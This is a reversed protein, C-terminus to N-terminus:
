GGSPHAIRWFCGWGEAQLGVCVEKLCGSHSLFISIGTLNEQSSASISHQGSCGTPISLVERLSIQETPCTRDRSGVLFMDTREAVRVAQSHCVSGAEGQNPTSLSPWFHKESGAQLTGVRPSARFWSEESFCAWHIRGQCKAVSCGPWPPSFTTM